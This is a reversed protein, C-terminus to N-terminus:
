VLLALLSGVATLVALGAAVRARWALLLATAVGGVTVFAFWAAMGSGSGWASVSLRAALSLWILCGVCALWQLARSPGASHWLEDCYRGQALALAFAATYTCALIHIMMWLWSTAHPTATLPTM